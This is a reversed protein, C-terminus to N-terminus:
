CMRATIESNHGLNTNPGYLLGVNPMDELTVGYYAKAGDVWVDQLTRGNKGVLKIPHMFDVTKFGTACVLLDFDGAEADVIGGVDDKVKVKLGEISDVPRTELTVNPLALTPFYDDSIIVRKCGPNYDPILKPWLDKRDPLQSELMDKHQTRIDEALISNGDTVASHWSERFDMM